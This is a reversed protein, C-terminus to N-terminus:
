VHKDKRLCLIPLLFKTNVHKLFETEYIRSIQPKALFKTGLRGVVIQVANGDDEACFNLCKCALSMNIYIVSCVLQHESGISRNNLFM